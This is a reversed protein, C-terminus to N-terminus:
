AIRGRELSCKSLPTTTLRPEPSRWSGSIVRRGDELEYAAIDGLGIPSVSRFPRRIKGPARQPAALRSALDELVKRRRKLLTADHEFRALDEGSALISMARDRM